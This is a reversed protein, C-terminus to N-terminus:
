GGLKFIISWFALLGFGSLIIGSIRNIWRLRHPTIKDKMFGIGTVLVCWWLASGSFVSLVLLLALGQGYTNGAGLGAFIAAFSLITLPNTLTLFLTSVYARWLTKGDIKAAQESPSSRFTQWGLYCLFLGGILRLGIQHEILLNSIFTLGLAAICGYFGDATAAGLGSILGAIRGQSLTRRICLIGIPGVPAAISFGIILGKLIVALAM